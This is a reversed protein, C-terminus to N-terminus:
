QREGQSTTAPILKDARCEVWDDYNVFLARMKAKRERDEQAAARKREKAGKKWERAKEQRAARGEPTHGTGRAIDAAVIKAYWQDRVAQMEPPLKHGCLRVLDDLVHGIPFGSMVNDTWDEAFILIWRAALLQLASDSGAKPTYEALAAEWRANQEDIVYQMAARGAEEDEDM